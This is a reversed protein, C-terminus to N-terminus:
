HAFSNKLLKAYIFIVSFASSCFISVAWFYLLHAVVGAIISYVLMSYIHKLLPSFYSRIQTLASIKDEHMYVCLM